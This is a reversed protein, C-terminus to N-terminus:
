HNMRASIMNLAPLATPMESAETVESNEEVENIDENCSMGSSWQGYNMQQYSPMPPQQVANPVEVYHHQPQPATPVMAPRPPQQYIPSQVHVVQQPMQSHFMPTQYMQPHAPAHYMPTTYQQAAQMVTTAMPPYTQQMVNPQLQHVQRMVPEYQQPYVIQQYQAPYVTQPITQYAQPPCGVMQAPYQQTTYQVCEPPQLPTMLSSDQVSQTENSMSDQAQQCAIMSTSPQLPANPPVPMMVPPHPAYVEMSPSTLLPSPQVYIQQHQYPAYGMEDSMQYQYVAPYGVPIGATAQTSSISRFSTQSARDSFSLNNMREATEDIPDRPSLYTASLIM